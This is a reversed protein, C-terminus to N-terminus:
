YKIPIIRITDALPNKTNRYHEWKVQRPGWKTVDTAKPFEQCSGLIEEDEGKNKYFIAVYDGKIIISSINTGSLTPPVPQTCENIRDYKECDQELKPVDEFKMESLKKDFLKDSDLNKIESDKIFFWGGGVEPRKCFEILDDINSFTFTSEKVSYGGGSSTEAYVTKEDNICAKRFFYIGKTNDTNDEIEDNPDYLASNDFKYISASSFKPELDKNCEESPPVYYCDGYLNPNEYLLSVYYIDESYNNSDSTYPVIKASKIKKRFDNFDLVSSTKPKINKDECTNDKYFYVGPAPKIIVEPMEEEQLKETKFVSLEPNITTIILYTFLIILLGSIAGFIRDKADVKKQVLSAFGSLVYLVGGWILSAITAFIGIITGANFLYIAFDPLTTDATLKQGAVEPYKVELTPKQPNDIALVFSLLNFFFFCFIIVFVFKKMINKIIGPKEM